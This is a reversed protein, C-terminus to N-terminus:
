PQFITVGAEASSGRVKWGQYYMQVITADPHRVKLPPADYVSHKDGAKLHLETIHGTANAICVTTDKLAQFHVYNGPKDAKPNHPHVVSPLTWLENVCDSTSTTSSMSTAPAPNQTRTETAPSTTMAPAEAVTKEALPQTKISVKRQSWWLGAAALVILLLALAFRPGGKRSRHRFHPLSSKITQNPPPAVTSSTPVPAPQEIDEPTTPQLPEAGLAALVKVGATFKIAENYFHGQAEDGELELLQANSLLCQRALSAGDVEAAQRLKLLYNADSAQWTRATM